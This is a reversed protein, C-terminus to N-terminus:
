HKGQMIDLVLDNMREGQINDSFLSAIKERGASAFSQMEAPNEILRLLAATLAEADGPPVLLGDVENTILETLGGAASAIVPRGMAMAEAAAFGFAEQCISPMVCIDMAAYMRYVPDIRGMFRVRNDLGMEIAMRRMAQLEPGDGVILLRTRPHRRYLNQFAKILFFLGKEPHLRGAFGIVLDDSLYGIESRTSEREPLYERIREVPVGNTVERILSSKIGSRELQLRVSHSVAIICEAGCNILTRTIPSISRTLHRVLAVKRRTLKSAIVAPWYEKPSNAIILEIRDKRIVRILAAIAQLDLASRIRVQRVPSTGLSGPQGVAGHHWCGMFVRHGLNVLQVALLEAYTEGGGVVSGPRGIYSSIILIRVPRVLPTILPNIMPQAGSDMNHFLGEAM